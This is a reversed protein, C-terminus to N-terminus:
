DTNNEANNGNQAITLIRLYDEATPKNNGKGIQKTPPKTLDPRKVLWNRFHRKYESYHLHEKSEAGCHANFDKIDTESFKVRASTEIDEKDKETNLLRIGFVNHTDKNEDENENGNIYLKLLHELVQKDKHKDLQESEMEYLELKLRNIYESNFGQITLATKIIAGITGSKSRKDKFLERGAIIQKAYANELRGHENQKFKQMLVQNLMQKFREFESHKVGALVALKEVDNPLDKKDFQHLILNLYWGRVDSDMEATAALWTDIYFLAAPDRNAM